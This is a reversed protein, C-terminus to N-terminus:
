EATLKSSNMEKAPATQLTHREKMHTYLTNFVFILTKLLRTSACFKFFNDVSMLSFLHVLVPKNLLNHM